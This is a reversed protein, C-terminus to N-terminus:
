GKFRVIINEICNRRWRGRVITRHAVLPAVEKAWTMYDYDSSDLVPFHNLHSGVTKFTHEGSSPDLVLFSNNTEGQEQCEYHLNAV